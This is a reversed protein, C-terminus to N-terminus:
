CSLPPHSVNRHKWNYRWPRWIDSDDGFGSANNDGELLDQLVSLADSIGLFSYEKLLRYYVEQMGENWETQGVIQEGLDRVFSRCQEEDFYGREDFRHSDRLSPPPITAILDRARSIDM